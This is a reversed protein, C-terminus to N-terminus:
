PRSPLPPRHAPQVTSQGIRDATSSEFGTLAAALMREQEVRDYVQWYQQRMFDIVPRREDLFTGNREDVVRDAGIVSM